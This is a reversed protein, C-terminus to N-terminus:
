SDIEHIIVTHTQILRLGHQIVIAIRVGLDFEAVVRVTQADLQELWNFFVCFNAYPIRVWFHVQM